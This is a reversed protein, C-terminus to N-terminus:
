QPLNGMTSLFLWVFLGIGILIAAVDFCDKILFKIM